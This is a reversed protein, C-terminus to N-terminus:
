VLKLLDDAAAAALVKAVVEGVAATCSGEPLLPMIKQGLTVTVDKGDLALISAAALLRSEMKFSPAQEPAHHWNIPETLLLPLKWSHLVEAGILAHDMGWYANEAEFCQLGEGRRKEEVAEWLDPRSAAFFVKGIDHLLGAVYAEDPLMGLRDDKKAAPGCVGSPGGLHAALARGLAATKLQHQWLGNINFAQPLKAEKIVSATGVLVALNRVECIGLISIARHLTTVQFELGYAASNAIALVRVTLKQSREILSVLDATSATSGDSTMAFLLPLLTAEFPLPPPSQMLKNLFARAEKHTQM